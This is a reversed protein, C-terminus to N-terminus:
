FDSDKIREAYRNLDDLLYYIRKGGSETTLTIWAPGLRRSRWRELTSVSGVGTHQRLYAAAQFPRLKM